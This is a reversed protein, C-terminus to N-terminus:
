LSTVLLDRREWDIVESVNALQRRLSETWVDGTTDLVTFRKPAGPGIAAIDLFKQITFATQANAGNGTTASLGELASLGRATRVLLDVTWNTAAGRVNGGRRVEAAAVAEKVFDELEDTFTTGTVGSTQLVVDGIRTLIQALRIAGPLIDGPAGVSIEIGREGISAGGLDAAFAISRTRSAGRQPDIGYNELFRYGEGFDTILYGDIQPLVFVEILGGDVYRMPSELRLFGNSERCRWGGFPDHLLVQALEHCNM